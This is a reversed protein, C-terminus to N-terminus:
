GTKLFGVVKVDLCFNFRENIPIKIPIIKNTGIRALTKELLSNTFKTFELSSILKKAIIKAIIPYKILKASLGFGTVSFTGQFVIQNTVPILMNIETAASAPVISSRAETIACIGSAIIGIAIVIMAPIIDINLLVMPTTAGNINGITASIDPT